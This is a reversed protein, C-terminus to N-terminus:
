ESPQKTAKRTRMMRPTATSRSPKISQTAHNFRRLFLGPSLPEPSYQLTCRHSRFYYTGEEHVEVKGDVRVMNPIIKGKDEIAAKYRWAGNVKVYKWVSM